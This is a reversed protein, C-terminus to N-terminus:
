QSTSTASSSTAASADPATTTAPTSSAQQVAAPDFVHVTRTATGINGNQDTVKYTIVSDGAVSTDIVVDSVEKGGMFVHVGLNSNIPSVIVAGLDAYSSHLPIQAPNNGLVQLVPGPGSPVANGQTSTTDSSGTNDGPTNSPNGADVPAVEPAPQVVPTYGPLQETTPDLFKGILGGYQTAVVKQSVHTRADAQTDALRQSERNVIDKMKQTVYVGLDRYPGLDAKSVEITDSRTIDQWVSDKLDITSLAYAVYYNDSDETVGTIQIQPTYASLDKNVLYTNDISVVQQNASYVAAPDTAAFAGGAGLLMVSIAIPVANNYKLFHLFPM